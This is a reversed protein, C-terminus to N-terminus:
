KSELNKRIGTKLYKVVLFLIYFIFGLGVFGLIQWIILGYNTPSVLDM